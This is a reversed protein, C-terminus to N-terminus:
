SQYKEAAEKALQLAYSSRHRQWAGLSRAWRFGHSKLFTRVAENPKGPFYLQVRNDEVNDCITVGNIEEDTTEESEAKVLQALRQKMRRINASNNSLRWSQFGPKEFSYEPNLLSDITREDFTHEEHLTAIKQETTTKKSRCIKNIAKMWEQHQQAQAIKEELKEIADPDDSFIATNGAAAAAKEKYYEGKRGEQVAQGLKNWSRDLLRRHGKESHHGVLIPQGMPIHEVMDRSEQHMQESKQDAKEALEEYREIRGAKREHFNSKM